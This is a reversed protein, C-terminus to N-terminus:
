DFEEHLIDSEFLVVRRFRIPAAVVGLEVLHSEVDNPVLVRGLSRGDELFKVHAVVWELVEALVVVRALAIPVLLIDGPVEFLPQRQAM